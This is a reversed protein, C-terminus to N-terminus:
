LCKIFTLKFVPVKLLKKQFGNNGVSSFIKENFLVLFHLIDVINYLFVRRSKFYM